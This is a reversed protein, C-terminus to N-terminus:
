VEAGKEREKLSKVIQNGQARANANAQSAESRDDSVFYRGINETFGKTTELLTMADEGLRGIYIEAVQTINAQTLDLVGYYVTNLVDARDTIRTSTLEWQSGGDKGGEMLIQEEKMLEKERQHFHGFYGEAIMPEEEPPPEAKAKM